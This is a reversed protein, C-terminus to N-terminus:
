VHARGIELAKALPMPATYESVEDGKTGSELLATSAAIRVRIAENAWDNAPKSMLSMVELPGAPALIAPRASTRRIRASEANPRLACGNPVRVLVLKPSM